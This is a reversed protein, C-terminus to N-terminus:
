RRGSCSLRDMTLRVRRRLSHRGQGLQRMLPWYDAFASRPDDLTRYREWFGDAGLAAAMNFIGHFGFTPESPPTREYAFRAASKHDAFRIGHETELYDRNLRCIALDEPHEGRFRPDRCAALLRRSRLSFGGNGVDHGDAFQPWPAGAYDFSLFANDWRGADLVFGDWQVILCHSTRVHDILGHLMFESYARASELTAIPIVRIAPDSAGVEADTFLLVEAFDVLDMCQRLAAITAPLNVSTAACLTVM